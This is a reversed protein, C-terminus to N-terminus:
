KAMKLAKLGTSLSSFPGIVRGMKVDDLAEVIELDLDKKDKVRLLNEYEKRPIAILEEDSIFNKPITITTM